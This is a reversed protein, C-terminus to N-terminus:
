GVGAMRSRVKDTVRASMPSARCKSFRPSPSISPPWVSATRTWASAGWSSSTTSPWVMAPVASTPSSTWTMVGSPSPCLRRMPPRPDRQTRRRLDDPWAGLLTLARRAREFPDLVTRLRAAAREREPPNPFACESFADLTAAVHARTDNEPTHIAAHCAVSARGFPEHCWLALARERAEDDPEHALELVMHPQVITRRPPARADAQGQPRPEQAGGRAAPRADPCYLAAYADTDNLWLTVSNEPLKAAARKRAKRADRSLREGMKTWEPEPAADPEPAPPAEAEEGQMTRRARAAVAAGARANLHGGDTPDPLAEMVRAALDPDDTFDITLTGSRTQARDGIADWLGVREAQSDALNGFSAICAGEREIYRQHAQAAGAGHSQSLAFHLTSHRPDAASGMPTSAGRGARGGSWASNRSARICAAITASPPREWAGAVGGAGFSSDAERQEALVASVARRTRASAHRLAQEEEGAITAAVRRTAAAERQRYAEPSCSSAM